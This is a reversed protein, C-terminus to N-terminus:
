DGKHVSTPIGSKQPAQKGRVKDLDVSEFAKSYQGKTKDHLTMMASVLVLLGMILLMNKM